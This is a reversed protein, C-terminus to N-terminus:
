PMDVLEILWPPPQTRNQVWEDIINRGICQLLEQRQLWSEELAQNQRDQHERYRQREGPTCHSYCHQAFSGAGLYIATNTCRKGTKAVYGTCVPRSGSYNQSLDSHPLRELRAEVTDILSSTPTLRSAGANVAATHRAYIAKPRSPGISWSSDLAANQSLLSAAGSAHGVLDRVATLGAICEEFNLDVEDALSILVLQCQLLHIRLEELIQLGLPSASDDDPRDNSETM